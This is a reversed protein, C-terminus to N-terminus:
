VEKYSVIEGAVPNDDHWTIDFYVDFLVEAVQDVVADSPVSRSTFKVYSYDDGEVIAANEANLAAGLEQISNKVRKLSSSAFTMSVIM